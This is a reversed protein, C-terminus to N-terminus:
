PAHNYAITPYTPGPCSHPLPLPSWISLDFDQVTLQIGPCLKEANLDMKERLIRLNKFIFEHDKTKAELMAAVYGNEIRIKQLEIDLLATKQVLQQHLERQFERKAM